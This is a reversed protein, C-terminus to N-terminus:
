FDFMGIVQSIVIFQYQETLQKYAFRLIFSCQEIESLDFTLIVMSLFPIKRGKPPRHATQTQYFM